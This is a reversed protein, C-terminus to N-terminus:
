YFRQLEGRRRREYYSSVIGDPRTNGGPPRLPALRPLQQPFEFFAALAPELCGADLQACAIRWIALIKRNISVRSPDDLLLVDVIFKGEPTCGKPVGEATWEVHESM